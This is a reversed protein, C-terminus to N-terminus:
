LFCYRENYLSGANNVLHSCGEFDGSLKLSHLIKKAVKMVNCKQRLKLPNISMELAEIIEISYPLHLCPIKEVLHRM